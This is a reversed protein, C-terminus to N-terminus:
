CYTFSCCIDFHNVKAVGSIFVYHTASMVYVNTYALSIHINLGVFFKVSLRNVTLNFSDGPLYEIIPCQWHTYTYTMEYSELYLPCRLHASFVCLMLFKTICLEAIEHYM